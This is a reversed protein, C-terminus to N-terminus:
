SVVFEDFCVNGTVILKCGKQLLPRISAMLKNVDCKFYHIEDCYIVDHNIGRINNENAALSRIVSGNSLTLTSHSLNIKFEDLDSRTIIDRLARIMEKSRLLNFSMISISSNPNKLARYLCYTLSITTKGSQRESGLNVYSQSDISEIFRQQFINPELPILGEKANLITINKIFEEFTM